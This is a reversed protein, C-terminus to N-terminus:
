RANRTSMSYSYSDSKGEADNALASVAWAHICSLIAAVWQLGVLLSGGKLGNFYAQGWRQFAELGAVSQSTSWASAVMLLAASWASIKAALRLIRNPSKTFLLLCALVVSLFWDIGGATM